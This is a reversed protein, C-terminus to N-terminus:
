CAWFAEILSFLQGCFQKSKRWFWFAVQKQGISPQHTMKRRLRRGKVYWRATLHQNKIYFLILHCIRRKIAEMRHTQSTDGGTEPWFTRQLLRPWNRHGRYIHTLAHSPTFWRYCLPSLSVSMRLSRLSLMGPRIGETQKDTCRKMWRRRHHLHHTVLCHPTKEEKERRKLDPSTEQKENEFLWFYTFLM